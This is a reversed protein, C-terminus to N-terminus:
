KPKMNEFTEKMLDIAKQKKNLMISFYPKKQDSFLIRGKYSVALAQIQEVTPSKIYFIVNQGRQAIETIGFSSATNRLIAVNILGIVSKPPEGYRDILEDIVDQSDEETEIFAIRRYVDIRQSLSEVYKDPIYADISIDVLCDESSSPLAIGKQEAIAENLLRLYMDYGVADMHGHQ